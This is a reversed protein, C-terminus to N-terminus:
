LSGEEGDSEDEMVETDPHKAYVGEPARIVARIPLNKKKVFYKWYKGYDTVLEVFLAALFKKEFLVVERWDVRFDPVVGFLHPLLRQFEDILPKPCYRCYALDFRGEEIAWDIETVSNERTLRAPECGLSDKVKDLLVGVTAVDEGAGHLRGPPILLVLFIGLHALLHIADALLFLSGSRASTWLEIGGALITIAAAFAVRGAPVHSLEPHHTHM